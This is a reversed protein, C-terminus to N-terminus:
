NLNISIASSGCAPCEDVGVIASDDGQVVENSFYYSCDACTFYRVPMRQLPGFRRRLHDLV